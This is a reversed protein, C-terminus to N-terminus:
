SAHGSVVTASNANQVLSGFGSAGLFCIQGNLFFQLPDSVIIPNKVRRVVFTEAIDGFVITKASIGWTSPLSNDLQVPYGLLTRQVGTNIGAVYQELILPRHDDDVLGRILKWVSSHM